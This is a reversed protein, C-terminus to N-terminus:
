PTELISIPLAFRGDRGSVPMPPLEDIYGYVMGEQLYLPDTEDAIVLVQRSRGHVRRLLHLEDYALARAEERTAGIYRLTLDLRRCASFEVMQAQYRLLFAAWVIGSLVLLALAAAVWSAGLLSGSGFAPAMILGNVCLLLVGPITFLLDAMIVTRAAFHIVKVQQSLRALTMWAAAGVINGIFLVAGVIHLLKHWQHSYFPFPLSLLLVVVILGLALGLNFRSLSKM